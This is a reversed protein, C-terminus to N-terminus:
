GSPTMNATSNIFAATGRNFRQVIGRGRPPTGGLFAQRHFVTGGYFAAIEPLGPQHQNQREGVTARQGAHVGRQRRPDGFLLRWSVYSTSERQQHVSGVLCCVSITVTVSRRRCHCRM